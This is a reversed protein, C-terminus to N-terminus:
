APVEAAILADVRIMRVQLRDMRDDDKRVWAANWAVSLARNLRFLRELRDMVRGAETRDLPAVAGVVYAEPVPAGASEVPLVAM